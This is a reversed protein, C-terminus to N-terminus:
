CGNNQHMTCLTAETGQIDIDQILESHNYGGPKAPEREKQEESVPSAEAGQFVIDQILESHNYGGPKASEKEKQEESVTTESLQTTAQLDDELRVKNITSRHDQNLVSKNVTDIKDVKVTNYEKSKKGKKKNGRTFFTGAEKRRNKKYM